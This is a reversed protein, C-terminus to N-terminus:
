RGITVKGVLEELRGTNGGKSLFKTKYSPDCLFLLLCHEKLYNM